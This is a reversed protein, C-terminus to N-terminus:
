LGSPDPSLWDSHRDRLADRESTTLLIVDAGGDYPCYLWALSGDAILFRGQDDAAAILVDDLASAALGTKVWLYYFGLDPEDGPM